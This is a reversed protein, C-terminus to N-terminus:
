RPCFSPGWFMQFCLPRRPNRLALGAAITSATIIGTSVPLGSDPNYSICASHQMCYRAQGTHPSNIASGLMRGHAPPPDNCPQMQSFTHDFNLRVGEWHVISIHGRAQERNSTVLCLCLSKCTAQPAPSQLILLEQSQLMPWLINCILESM